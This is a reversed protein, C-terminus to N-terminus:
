FLDEEYKGIEAHFRTKLESREGIRNKDLIIIVEDKNASIKEEIKGNNDIKGDYYSEQYIMFIGNADQAISGSDKLDSHRPKKDQRNDINRNVQALAVVPIDYDSTLQKLGRSVETTKAYLNSNIANNSGNMLQIYDIFVCCVHYKANIQDIFCKTGAITLSPPSKMLIPLQAVEIIAQDFREREDENIQKKMIRSLPVGSVMSVLKQNLLKASMELSLFLFVNKKKDTHTVKTEVGDIYVIRMRKAANYMMNLALTTKGMGTAAGIVYLSSNLLGHMLDDFKSFGTTFGPLTPLEYRADDMEQKLEECLQNVSVTEFEENDNIGSFESVLKTMSELKEATTLKSNNKYLDKIEKALNVGNCEIHKNYLIESASIVDSRRWRGKALALRMAEEIDDAEEKPLEEQALRKIAFPSPEQKNRVLREYYYFITLHDTFYFYEHKLKIISPINRYFEDSLISGLITQEVELDAYIVANDTGYIDTGLDGDKRYFEPTFRENVTPLNTDQSPTVDLLEQSNM